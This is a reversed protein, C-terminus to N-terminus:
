MIHSPNLNMMRCMNAGKTPIILPIIGRVVSYNRYITGLNDSASVSFSKVNVKSRTLSYLIWPLTFFKTIKRKGLNILLTFLIVHLRFNVSKTKLRFASIVAEPDLTFDLTVADDENSDSISVAEDDSDQNMRSRKKPPSGSQERRKSKDVPLAFPITKSTGALQDLAAKRVHKDVKRHLYIM